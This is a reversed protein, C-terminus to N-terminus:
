RAGEFSVPLSGLVRFLSRGWVAEGHDLELGKVRRVLTGIAQQSEMRALHAGLCFHVGGGFALHDNDRRLTHALPEASRAGRYGIVFHRGDDLAQPSAPTGLRALYAPAAYVGLLLNATGERDDLSFENSAVFGHYTNDRVTFTAVDQIVRGRADFGLTVRPTVAVSVGAVYNVENPVSLDVENPTFGSVGPATNVASNVAPFISVAEESPPWSMGGTIPM